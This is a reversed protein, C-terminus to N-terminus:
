LATTLLDSTKRLVKLMRSFYTLGYSFSRVNQLLINYFHFCVCLM